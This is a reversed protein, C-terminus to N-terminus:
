PSPPSLLGIGKRENFSKVWASIKPDQLIRLEELHLEENVSRSSLLRAEKEASLRTLLQTTNEGFRCTLGESLRPVYQLMSTDVTNATINGLIAWDHRERYHNAVATDGSLSLGRSGAEWSTVWHTFIANVVNTNVAYKPCTPQVKEERLVSSLEIQGPDAIDFRYLPFSISHVENTQYGQSAVLADWTTGLYDDPVEGGAFVNGDKMHFFEDIDMHPLVWTAHNKFRFLCDQMM